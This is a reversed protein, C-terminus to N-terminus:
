GNNDQIRKCNDIEFFLGQVRDIFMIVIKNKRRM